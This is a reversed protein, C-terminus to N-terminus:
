NLKGHLRSKKRRWLFRFNIRSNMLELYRIQCRTIIFQQSILNALTNQLMIKATYVYRFRCFITSQLRLGFWCFLFWHIYTTIGHLSEVTNCNMHVARAGITDQANWMRIMTTQFSRLVVRRGEIKKKEFDAPSSQQVGDTNALWRSTRTVPIVKGWPGWSKTRGHSNCYGPLKQSFSSELFWSEEINVPHDM